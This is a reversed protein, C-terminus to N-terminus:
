SIRRCLLTRLHKHLMLSAWVIRTMPSSVRHAVICRRRNMSLGRRFPVRIRVGMVSVSRSRLRGVVSTVERGLWWRILRDEHVATWRWRVHHITWVITRWKLSRRWLVRGWRWLMLRDFNFAFTRGVRSVISPVIGVRLVRGMLIVLSRHAVRSV